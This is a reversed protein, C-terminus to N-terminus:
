RGRRTTGDGGKPGLAPYLAHGVLVKPPSPIWNFRLDHFSFDIGFGFFCFLAELGFDLGAGLVTAFGAFVDVKFNGPM